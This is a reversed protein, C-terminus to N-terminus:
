PAVARLVADFRVQRPAAPLRRSPAGPEVTVTTRVVRVPTGVFEADLAAIHDVLPMPIGGEDQMVQHTDRKLYFTRTSITTGLADRVIFTMGDAAPRVESASMAQTTLTDVIVRLRQDMDIADQEARVLADAPSMVLVVQAGLSATLAGAVLVETLTM